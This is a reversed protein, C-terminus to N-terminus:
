EGIFVQLTKAKEEHYAVIPQGHSSVAVDLYAGSGPSQSVQHRAWRGQRFLAYSLSGDRVDTGPGRSFAVLLVGKGNTAFAMNFAQDCLPKAEWGNQTFRTLVLNNTMSERYIIQPASGSDVFLASSKGPNNERTVVECTWGQDKRQYAIKLESSLGSWHLYSAVLGGQPQEMLTILVKESGNARDVQESGWIGASAPPQDQGKAPQAAVPKPQERWAHKLFGDGSYYLAHLKGQQDYLLRVGMGTGQGWEITEKKWEQGVKMALMLMKDTGSYYAVVPEGQANQKIASYLCQSCNSEVTEVSFGNETQRAYKLAQQSRDYYSLHVIDSADLHLSVFEGVNAGAEVSLHKGKAKGGDPLAPVTSGCKSCSSLYVALGLLMWPLPSGFRAM